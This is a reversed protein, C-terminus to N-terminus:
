VLTCARQRGMGGGSLPNNVVNREWEYIIGLKNWEDVVRDTFWSKGMEKKYKFKDLKDM